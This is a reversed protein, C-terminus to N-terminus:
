RAQFDLLRKYVNVLDARHEDVESKEYFGCLGQLCLLEFFCTSAIFSSLVFKTRDHIDVTVIVQSIGRGRGELIDGGGRGGGGGM